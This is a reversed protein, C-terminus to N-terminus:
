QDAPSGWKTPNRSALEAYCYVLALGRYPRWREAFTRMEAEPAKDAKGLMGKAFYKVVGLDGAPFTDARALGRMLATEASWRGIGKIATLREVVEEDPVGAWGAATDPFESKAAFTEGLRVLTGAKANSLRFARMDEVSRDAFRRPEPFAYYTRGEHRWKRGFTEVLEKKISYAFTLNVQQSLVAMVLAEFLTPSSTIRLGRFRRVLPALMDDKRALRYFPNLDLDTCLMHRLQAEFAEVKLAAKSPSHLEVALQPKAVSGADTVTALALQRGAALLRRYQKGEVLDVNESAFRMFRAATFHFSYPARPIIEFTHPM